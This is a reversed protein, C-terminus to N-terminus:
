KVKKKKSSYEKACFKSCFSMNNPIVKGCNWCPHMGQEFENKSTAETTESDELYTADKM